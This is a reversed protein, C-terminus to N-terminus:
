KGALIANIESMYNDIMFDKIFYVEGELLFGAEEEATDENYYFDLEKRVPATYTTQGSNPYYEQVIVEDGGDEIKIIVGSFATHHYSATNGELRKNM